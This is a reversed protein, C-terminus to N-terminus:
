AMTGKGSMLRDSLEAEIERMDEKAFVATRFEDTIPDGPKMPRHQIVAQDIEKSVEQADLWLRFDRELMRDKREQERKRREAARKAVEMAKADDQELGLGFAGNLWEVADKISCRNVNCVLDIVDGGSHCVYCYYGKSGGYVKLNRDQGNHVPCRCRGYRDPALGLADAAQAASVSQKIVSCADRLNM